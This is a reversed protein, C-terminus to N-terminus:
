SLLCSFACTLEHDNSYKHTHTHPKGGAAATHSGNSYHLRNTIRSMIM